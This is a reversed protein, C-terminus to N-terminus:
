VEVFAERGAALAARAKRMLRGATTRDDPYARVHRPLFVDRFADDTTSIYGGRCTIIATQDGRTVTVKEVTAGHADLIVAAQGQRGRRILTTVITVLQATFDAPADDYIVTLTFDWGHAVAEVALDTLDSATLQPAYVQGTAVPTAWRTHGADQEQGFSDPDADQTNRVLFAMGMNSDILIQSREAAVAQPPQEPADQHPALDLQFTECYSVEDPGWTVQWRDGRRGTVRGVTQDPIVHFHSELFRDPVALVVQAGVYLTPLPSM